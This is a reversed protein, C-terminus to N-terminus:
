QKTVKLDDLWPNNAASPEPQGTVVVVTGDPKVEYRAVEVGAKSAEKAVSALTPKRPQKAPRRQEEQKRLCDLLSPKEFLDFRDARRLGACALDEDCLDALWDEVTNPNEHTV